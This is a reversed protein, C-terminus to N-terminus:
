MCAELEQLRGHYSNQGLMQSSPLFRVCQVATYCCEWSSGVSKCGESAAGPQEAVGERQGVSAKRELLM